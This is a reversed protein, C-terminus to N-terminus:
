SSMFIVISESYINDFRGDHSVKLFKEVIGSYSLSGKSGAFFSSLSKRISLPIAIGISIISTSVYLQSTLICRRFHISVM